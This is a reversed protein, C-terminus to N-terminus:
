DTSLSWAAQLAVLLCGPIISPKENFQRRFAPLCGYPLVQEIWDDGPEISDQRVAAEGAAGGQAEAQTNDPMPASAPPYQGAGYHPVHGPQQQLHMQQQAHAAAHHFGQLNHTHSSHANALGQIHAPYQHAQHSASAAAQSHPALHQTAHHPYQQQYPQSHLSAPATLQHLHHLSKGPLKHMLAYQM